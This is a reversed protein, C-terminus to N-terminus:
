RSTTTGTRGRPRRRRPGSRRRRGARRAARRCRAAAAPCRLGAGDVRAAVPGTLRGALGRVARLGRGPGRDRALGADRRVSRPWRWSSRPSGRSAAAPAPAGRRAPQDPRSSTPTPRTAAGTAPSSAPRCSRGGPTSRASPQSPPAAAIGARPGAGRGASRPRCTASSAPASRWVQRVVVQEIAALPIYATTSCTACCWSTPRHGLRPPAADRGLGARRRAVAGLVVPLPFGATATSRRRRGRDGGVLVLASCAASRGNTPRFREVQEEAM